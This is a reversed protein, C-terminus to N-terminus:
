IQTRVHMWLGNGHRYFSKLGKQEFWNWPQSWWPEVDRVYMLYIATHDYSCPPPWLCWHKVTLKQLSEGPQVVKMGERMCTPEHKNEWRPQTKITKMPLEPKLIGAEATDAGGTKTRKSIEKQTARRSQRGSWRSAIWGESSQHPTLYQTKSDAQQKQACVLRRQKWSLRRVFDTRQSKFFLLM